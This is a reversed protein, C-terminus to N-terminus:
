RNLSEAQFVAPTRAKHLRLSSNSRMSIHTM